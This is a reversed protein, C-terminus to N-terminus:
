HALELLQAAGNPQSIGIHGTAPNGQDSMADHMCRVTQQQGQVGVQAMPDVRSTAAVMCHQTPVARQCPNQARRCAYTYMTCRTCIHMQMDYIAHLTICIHMYPVHM